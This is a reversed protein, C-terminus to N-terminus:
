VVYEEVDLEFWFDEQYHPAIDKAKVVKFANDGFSILFEEEEDILDLILGRSSLDIKSSANIIIKSGIITAVNFGIINLPYDELNSFQIM